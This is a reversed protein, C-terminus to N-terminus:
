MVVGLEFVKIEVSRTTVISFDSNVNRRRFLIEM